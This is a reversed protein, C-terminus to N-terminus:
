VGDGGRGDRSVYAEQEAYARARAEAARAEFKRRRREQYAEVVPGIIWYGVFGAILGPGLGGVLYPLFVDNAFQALGAYDPAGYGFWSKTTTWVATAGTAFADMVAEFDSDGGTQGLITRGLWLSLGSIFPFTLPNGVATGLLAAIVSARLVLALLAALIFHLTFFPTFSALAGCAFGLAIRHPTDPLRHIRKTIYRFGRWFGKRPYLFDRLRSWPSPRDRRKFIM